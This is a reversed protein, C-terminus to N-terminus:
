VWFKAAEVQKLDYKTMLHKAMAARVPPLLTKVAVECPLLMENMRGNQIKDNKTWKWEV